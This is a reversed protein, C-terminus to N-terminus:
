HCVGHGSESPVGGACGHGSRHRRGGLRGARLQPDRRGIPRAAQPVDRDSRQRARGSSYSAMQVSPVGYRVAVEDPAITICSVAVDPYASNLWALVTELSADNGINGSGLYGYLAVRRVPQKM